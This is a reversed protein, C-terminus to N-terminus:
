EDPKVESEPQQLYHLLCMLCNEEPVGDDSDVLDYCEPKNQCFKLEFDSNALAYLYRALEPDDLRRILDGRSPTEAECPGFACHSVYGPETYKKCLGKDHHVCAYELSM